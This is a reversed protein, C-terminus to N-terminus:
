FASAKVQNITLTNTIETRDLIFCLNACLEADETQLRLLTSFGLVNGISDLFM